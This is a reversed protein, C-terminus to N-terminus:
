SLYFPPARSEPSLFCCSSHPSVSRAIDDCSSPRNFDLIYIRSALVAEQTSELVICATHCLEALRSGVPKEHTEGLFGGDADLTIRKIGDPSCIVLTRSGDANIQLDGSSVAAMAGMHSSSIVLQFVLTLLLAWRPMHLNRLQRLM